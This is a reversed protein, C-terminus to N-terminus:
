PQEDQSFQEAENNQVQDIKDADEELKGKKKSFFSKVRQKFAFFLGSCTIFAIGIMQLLMSGTGPDFYARAPLISCLLVGFAGVMSVIRMYQNNM